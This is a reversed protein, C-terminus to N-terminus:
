ARMGKLFLEMWPLSKVFDPAVTELNLQGALGAHRHISIAKWQESRTMADLSARDPYVAVAIEDWLQEVRGLQLFTVDAAFFFQGGYKPLLQAVSAGYIQYAQRGTLDSERGDSYEAKEKFSLLNIMFIPGDPGTEEM